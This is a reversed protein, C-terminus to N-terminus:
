SVILKRAIALVKARLRSRKLWILKSGYEFAFTTGCHYTRVYNVAMTSREIEPDIRKEVCPATGTSVAAGLTPMARPLMVGSAGYRM